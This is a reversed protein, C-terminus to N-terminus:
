RAWNDVALGPVRAFERANNTVLTTHGPVDIEPVIMIFRERAHAVLDSYETQTYFGSPRGGVETRAGIETLRPRSQIEIRWGQDDTLHLHLVNLKYLAMLDIYRKVEDAPLFHRSVDLM